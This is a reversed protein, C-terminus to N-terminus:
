QPPTADQAERIIHRYRSAADSEWAIVNKILATTDKNKPDAAALALLDKQSLPPNCFEDQLEAQRKPDSVRNLAAWAQAALEHTDIFWAGILLPLLTRRKSSLAADLKMTNLAGFPNTTVPTSAALETYLSPWVCMRNINFHLAGGTQGKPTMWLLQGPRGLVFEMFHQAIEPHPPAKLIAISDPTISAEGDPITFSVNDVGDIRYAASQALGYVDVSLGYACDGYGVEVCSAAGSTYFSRTNASIQAILRWGADWGKAQLICEYIALISGSARPDTGVIWGALAPNALDTWTKVQPLKAYTCAKQNCLIGFNSLAAGYWFHDPDFVDIGNLQPPINALIDPPLDCKQLLHAAKLDLYPDVGGGFLIDVGASEHTAFDNKLAKLITSTGGGESRWQVDVSQGYKEKHWDSFARAFEEQIGDWHPSVIVLTANQAAVTFCGLALALTFLCFCKLIRAFM